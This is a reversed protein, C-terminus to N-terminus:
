PQLIHSFFYEIHKLVQDNKFVGELLASKDHKMHQLAVFIINMQCGQQKEMAYKLHVLM